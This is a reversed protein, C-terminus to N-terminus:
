YFTFKRKFCIKKIDNLSNSIKPICVKLMSTSTKKLNKQIQKLEEKLMSNKIEECKNKQNKNAIKYEKLFLTSALLTRFDSILEKKDYDEVITLPIKGNLSRTIWPHCLSLEFDYRKHKGM